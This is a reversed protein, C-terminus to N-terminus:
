RSEHRFIQAELGFMSDTEGLEVLVAQQEGSVFVQANIDRIDTIIGPSTRM